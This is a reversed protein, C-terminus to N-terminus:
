APELRIRFIAAGDVGDAELRAGMADALVRAAFLGAVRGYRGDMRGKLDQQGALTFARERLEPAIAAGGDRLEVWVADGERRVSLHVPSRRAHQACNSLLVEVLKPLAGGGRVRLPESPLDLEIGLSKEREAATRVATVADADASKVAPDGSLWRGIWAVQDLGRTLDGVATETDALAEEADGSVAVGVEALYAVNAGITSMPNRLDHVVLGLLHGFDGDDHKREAM